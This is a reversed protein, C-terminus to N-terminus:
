MMRPRLGRWRLGPLREAEECLPLGLFLRLDQLRWTRLFNDLRVTVLPCSPRLPSGWRWTEALRMPWGM